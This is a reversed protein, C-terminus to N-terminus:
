SIFGKRLKNAPTKSPLRHLLLCLLSSSRILVLVEDDKDKVVVYDSSQKGEIRYRASITSEECFKMKWVFTNKDVVQIENVFAGVIDEIADDNDSLLYNLKEKIADMDIGESVAEEKPLAKELQAIQKQCNNLGERASAMPMLGSKVLEQLAKQQEKLTAIEKLIKKREDLLDGKKSIITKNSAKNSKELITIVAQVAESLEKKHEELVQHAILQLKTESIGPMACVKEKPANDSLKSLTAYQKKHRCDYGFVSTNTTKNHRWRIRNFHSGCSCVMLKGWITKHPKKGVKSNDGKNTCNEALRKQCFDWLEESVLPEFTGKVYEHESYNYNAKRKHSLYEVTHSKNYCLYGAYTKNHLIRSIRSSSWSVNGETNPIDRNVLETCIAKLGLGSAYLEFILKVTPAQQPDPVYTKGQRIYGLINGNGFLVGKQRATQLGALSRESAKRSEEQALTAFISLRLEGDNDGTWINDNYFLVTIGCKKLERTISLTDVTNRAFRCVERTIIMDFQGNKADELMQNFQPRLAYNTGTIGKDGYKAVVTWYPHNIALEDYWMLQSDYANAQMEHATSVRGYFAVKHVGYATRTDKENMM